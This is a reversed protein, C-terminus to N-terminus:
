CGRGRPTTPHAVRSIPAASETPDLATGIKSGKGPGLLILVERYCSQRRPTPSLSLQGSTSQQDPFLLLTQLLTRSPFSLHIMIVTSLARFSDLSIERMKYVNNHRRM